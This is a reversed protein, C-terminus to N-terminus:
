QFIAGGLHTIFLQPQQQYVGPVDGLIVDEVTELLIEDGDHPPKEGPNFAKEM